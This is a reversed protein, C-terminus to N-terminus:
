GCQGGGGGEIKEKKEERKSGMLVEKKQARLSKSKFVQVATEGRTM